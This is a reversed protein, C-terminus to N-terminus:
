LYRELDIKTKIIEIAEAYENKYGGFSGAKVFQFGAKLYIYIAGYSWTQTHLYIDRDGDIEIFKKVCECVIAKGLGLRQYDQKVAVWHLSLDRKDGTDNWWCSITAVNEGGPSQVFITRQKVEELYKLYNEVFYSRAEDESDFEGVSTEIEAWENEMGEHYPVFSYGIPLEPEPASTGAKRIM